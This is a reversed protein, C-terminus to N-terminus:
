LQFSIKSILGNSQKKVERMAEKINPKSWLLWRSWFGATEIGKETWEENPAHRKIYANKYGEDQHDLFTGYTPNPFGFHVTKIIKNDHNYLAAQFRKNKRTSSKIIVNM